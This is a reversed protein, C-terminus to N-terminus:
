LRLSSLLCLDPPDCNLALGSLYNVLSCRCFLWLSVSELVPSVAKCICLGSKLGWDWWFYFILFYFGGGVGIDGLIYHKTINENVEKIKRNTPLVSHCKCFNKYYIM